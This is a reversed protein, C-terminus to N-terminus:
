HLFTSTTTAPMLELCLSELTGGVAVVGSGDVPGGDLMIKGARMNLTRAQIIGDNNVVAETIANAARATMLVSGGDAVILGRNDVLAGIAAKGVHLNILGDGAFDMSVADGAAMAVTGLRAAIVGENRVSKGILAVYGGQSAQLTGQNVVAGAKSGTAFKYNGAQFDTDTLDLASAVLGGVNVQSSKGFIVGNPNIIFVQGNSEIKGMISSGDSGLVRNLAVSKSGPQEFVVKGDAGINFSQWNVGLKDSIQKITLQSSGVNVITGEGIAIQGGQPLTAAMVAAPSFLLLALIGRLKKSGAKSNSKTGEPVVVWSNTAKSWVHSHVKNM